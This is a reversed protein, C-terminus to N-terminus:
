GLNVLRFNASSSKQLMYANTNININKSGSYTYWHIFLSYQALLFLDKIKKKLNILINCRMERFRPVRGPWLNKLKNLNILKM